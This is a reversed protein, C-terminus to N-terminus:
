PHVAFVRCTVRDANRRPFPARWGAARRAFRHFGPVATMKEDFCFAMEDLSFHKGKYIMAM